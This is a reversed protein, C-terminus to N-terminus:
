SFFINSFFVTQQEEGWVFKNKNSAKLTPRLQDSHVQLNSLFQQLHNLIGMFSLLQKLTKPPELALVADIKSRKLRYGESDIDYGLWSLHNLSFEYKWLRLSFGEEELRVFVKHVLINHDVVSSKLVLLIDDLFCFVGSLGQLTNDM